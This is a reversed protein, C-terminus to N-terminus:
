SSAVQFVFAIKGVPCYLDTQFLAIFTKGYIVILRMCELFNKTWAKSKNLM